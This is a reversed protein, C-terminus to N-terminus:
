AEFLLLLLLLFLLFVCRGGAAAAVIVDIIDVFIEFKTSYRTYPLGM